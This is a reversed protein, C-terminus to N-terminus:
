KPSNIVPLKNNVDYDICFGAKRLDAVKIYNTDNKLIRDMEYTNGNIQFKSKEIVEDDGFVQKIIESWPFLEGPCNGKTVPNIQYHGAIHERDVPIDVDYINKIEERIHKILKIVANKQMDTLAGKTKSYFGECEIGVTYYNANTKRDRVAKLTSKGYYRKDSVNMSTGNCWATNKLDVLQTIEGKGSVVFHASVSSTKNCLWSVAGDYNGETIHCVIIDPKWGNRGKEYNPSNKQVILM